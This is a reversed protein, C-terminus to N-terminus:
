EAASAPAPTPLCLNYFCQQAFSRVSRWGVPAGRYGELNASKGCLSRADAASDAAAVYHPDLILLMPEADAPAGEGPLAVGVVTHALSGGGMMVPSRPGCAGFHDALERAVHAGLESGRTVFVFKCQVGYLRSLVLGVEQSGIWQRSGEFGAPKDGAAVLEQQIRTHTPLPAGRLAGHASGRRSPLGAPALLAQARELPVHHSVLLWSALTQLSRYACGWGRDDLGHHGYHYYDLSGAAMHVDEPRFGPPTPVGLHVDRLVGPEPRAIFERVAAAPDMTGRRLSAEAAAAQQLLLM